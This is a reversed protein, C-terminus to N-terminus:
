GLIVPKCLDGQGPGQRIELGDLSLLGQEAKYPFM